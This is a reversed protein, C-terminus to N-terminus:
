QLRSQFLRGCPAAPKKSAANCLQHQKVRRSHRGGPDLGRIRTRNEGSFM